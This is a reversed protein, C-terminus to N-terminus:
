GAGLEKSRRTAAAIADVIAAKAGREDLLRVAAETTGGKSTVAARLDEPRDGSEVLLAAAGFLTQAVLRDVVEAPLGDARGADAMAEALYFLDAPGSGSLGTVADLMEEPLRVVIGVAGLIREATALHEEGAHSGPAIAAAGKGVLAPTNPM